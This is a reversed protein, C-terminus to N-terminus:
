QRLDVATKAARQKKDYQNRHAETEPNKELLIWRYEIWILFIYLM